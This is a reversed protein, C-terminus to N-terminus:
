LTTPSSESSSLRERKEKATGDTPLGKERLADDLAKGRLQSGGGGGASEDLGGSSISGESEPSLDVSEVGEEEAQELIENHVEEAMQQMEAQTREVESLNENDAEEPMRELNGYARAEADGTRKVAAKTTIVGTPPGMPADDDGIVTNLPVVVGVMAAKLKAETIAEQLSGKSTVLGMSSATRLAEWNEKDEDNANEVGEIALFRDAVEGDFSGVQGSRLRQSPGGSQGPVRVAHDRKNVLEPM